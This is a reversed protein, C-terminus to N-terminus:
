FTLPIYVRIPVVGMTLDPHSLTGQVLTELIYGRDREVLYNVYGFIGSAPSDAGIALFISM